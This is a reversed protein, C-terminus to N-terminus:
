PLEFDLFASQQRPSQVLDNVEERGRLQRVLTAKFGEHKLRQCALLEPQEDGLQLQLVVVAKFHNKREEFLQLYELELLERALHVM